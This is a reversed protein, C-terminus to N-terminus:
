HALAHELAFSGVALGLGALLALTLKVRDHEHFHVEPLLDSLAVCLFTGASFALALGLWSFSAAPAPAAHNHGHHDHGHSDHAHGAHPSDGLALVAILAGLPVALAFAGNLLLAATRTLGDRKALTLVTFSDLPKHAVIALFVALGPLTLDATGADPDREALWAAGLALGAIVSHLTLGVTAGSWSLPRHAHAHDRTHAEDGAADHECAEAPIEHTHFSFFRELLFMALFGVLVAYMARDAPVTDLAHTLLHLLAVGLMFGAVASIVVQLRTHTLHLKSPLWGGLVSAAVILVLYLLLM